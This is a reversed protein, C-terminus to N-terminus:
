IVQRQAVKKQGAKRHASKKGIAKQKKKAIIKKSSMKKPITKKGDTKKKKKTIIKKSSVKEPPIQKGAVKKKKKAVVKKGTAKKPSAKESISKERVTRKKAAKKQTTEKKTKKQAKSIKAELLAVAQDLTTDEPQIDDPLSVNVRGCKVYPGYKGTFVAMVEDTDPHNGLEKLAVARGRGGKPQSLLELAKEFTMEFLGDTTPISRFDGDHVVYPGFRGLGVKVVKGTDPHQGLTKPLELLKLAQEVTISEYDIKSPISVRKPKGMGKEIESEGMQVYPGYRGTLVYVPLRTEPHQILVNAGNVKQDILKNAEVLSIDGPLCNEPLSACVEKSSEKDYRCVYAGYRGVKFNLGTLGELQISRCTENDILEGQKKVQDRLGKDGFYISELYADWEQDGQAIDDLSKEMESTFGTDVYNPLYSKLLKSVVLATFTPILANGMKKVYGRSQVTSIVVAYTSPRGIGEKEMMRVLSAETYRAPPKTEHEIPKLERCKVKDGKSMKPLRVERDDLAAEPDDKGEM